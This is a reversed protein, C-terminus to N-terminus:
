RSGRPIYIELVKKEEVVRDGKCKKCRDKEKYVSGSGKCSACTVTQQTVLGPGISRLGTTAGVNELRTLRLELHAATPM